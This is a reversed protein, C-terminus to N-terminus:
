RIRDFGKMNPQAATLRGGVSPGPEVMGWCGWDIQYIQTSEWWLAAMEGIVPGSGRSVLSLWEPWQCEVGPGPVLRLWLDSPQQLRVKFQSSGRSVM